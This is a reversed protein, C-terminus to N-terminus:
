VIRIFFFHHRHQYATYLFRLLITLSFRTFVSPVILFTTQLILILRLYSPDLNM